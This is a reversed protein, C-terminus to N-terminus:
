FPADYGGTLFPAYAGSWWPAYGTGFPARFRSHYGGVRGFHRSHLALGARQDLPGAQPLRGSFFAFTRSGDTAASSRGMTRAPAAPARHGSSGASARTTASRQSGAGRAASQASVITSASLALTLALAIIHLHMESRM